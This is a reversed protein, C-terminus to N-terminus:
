RNKSITHYLDKYREVVAEESFEARNRERGAAVLDDAFGPNDLVKRIGQALASVDDVPVMVGDVDPRVMEAPGSSAAAVLPIEHAWAEVTVTGNPERRSPFVCLDAARMLATRDTRWGLFRVRDSVGLRVSLAKLEADLPGAGAIWLYAGPVQEMAALLVDFAKVEHLRGLALLLPVDEPTNFLSRDIADVDDVRCFNPIYHVREKPFGADLFHQVIGPIIGVIHDYNRYYKPDYYGGDRAVKVFDGDPCKQAARNMWTMVVDPKFEGFLKSLRRRTQFEFRGGFPMTTVDCGALALMNERVDNPRTVIKQNFGARQFACSLSVFFTEAGGAAGGAMVQVSKM